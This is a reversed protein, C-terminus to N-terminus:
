KKEKPWSLTVGFKAALVDLLKKQVTRPAVRVVQLVNLEQKEIPVLLDKRGENCASCLVRLNSDEDSGGKSFPVIHDVHLRVKRSEDLPHDDGATAGCVQCTYGNRLLIKARQSASVGRGFHPKPEPSELIYEGPKLKARDHHSYIQYGEARLERVRRAWESIGAVERLQKDNVVKGVNKLFFELIKARASKRRSM